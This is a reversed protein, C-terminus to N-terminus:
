LSATKVSRLERREAADPLKRTPFSCHGPLLLSCMLLVPVPFPLLCIPCTVRDSMVHNYREREIQIYRHTYIYIYTHISRRSINHYLSHLCVIQMCIVHSAGPTAPEGDRGRGRQGGVLVVVVVVVM